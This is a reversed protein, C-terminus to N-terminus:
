NRTERLNGDHSQPIALNANDLGAHQATNEGVDKKYTM